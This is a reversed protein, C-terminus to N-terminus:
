VGINHAATAIDKPDIPTNVGIPSNKSHAVIANLPCYTCKTEDVVETQFM